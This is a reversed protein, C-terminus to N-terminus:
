EKHFSFFGMMWATFVKNMLDKREKWGVMRYFIYGDLILM